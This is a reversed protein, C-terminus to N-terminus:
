SETDNRRLIRRERQHGAPDPRLQHGAFRDALIHFTFIRDARWINRAIGLLSAVSYQRWAGFANENAGDAQAVLVRPPGQRIMAVHDRWTLNSARFRNIHDLEIWHGAPGWETRRVGTVTDFVTRDGDAAPIERQLAWVAHYDPLLLRACHEGGSPEVGARGGFYSRQEFLTVGGGGRSLFTAVALGAIGGGAVAVRPRVRANTASRIQLVSSDM